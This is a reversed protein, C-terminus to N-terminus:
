RREERRRGRLSFVVREGGMLKVILLSGKGKKGRRLHVPHYPLICSRPRRGASLPFRKEGKKRERRFMLSLGHTEM